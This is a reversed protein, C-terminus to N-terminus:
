VTGLFRACGTLPAYDDTILSVPVHAFGANLDYDRRVQAAFADAGGNELVLRAVGGALYVGDLPLYAMVLERVLQGVLDGYVPLLESEPMQAKLAAYGRGSFCEEVTPFRAALGGFRDKLADRITAPLSVHGAEVDLAVLTGGRHFVPSANFGTGIGAVMAQGNSLPPTDSRCIVKLCDDGLTVSAYGLAKLDNLFHVPCSLLESLTPGDFLWDRNTLKAGFPSVPGAIAIAAADLNRCDVRGRYVDLADAFGAHDDNAFRLITSADVAGDWALAFRTNTGGVDAVLHKM